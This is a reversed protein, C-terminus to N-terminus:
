PRYGFSPPGPQLTRAALNVWECLHRRTNSNEARFVPGIEFVRGLDAAIAMQKYLQPLSARTSNPELLLLLSLSLPPLLQNTLLAHM